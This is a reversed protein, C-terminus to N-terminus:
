QEPYLSSEEIVRELDPDPADFDDTMQIKGRYLGFTRKTTHPFVALPRIEAFPLNRDCLVVTEGAKVRRAIRSLHTKAEHINVKKV